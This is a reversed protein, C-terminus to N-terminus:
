ISKIVKIEWDKYRDPIKLCIGMDEPLDKAFYCLINKDRVMQWLIKNGCMPTPGSDKVLKDQLKKFDRWRINKDLLFLVKDKKM